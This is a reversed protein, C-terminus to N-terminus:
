KTKNKKIIRRGGLDVRVSVSKGSVVSQRDGQQVYLGSDDVAVAAVAASGYTSTTKLGFNTPTLQEDLSSSRASIEAGETGILLRQLPLLWNIFDIPGSGITRSIPGSNGEITDDFSDFADSVSGIVEERGAHWLRSRFLTTYPFLTDTRTSRPPRRIM